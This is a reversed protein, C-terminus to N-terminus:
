ILSESYNLSKVKHRWLMVFGLKHQARTPKLNSPPQVGRGGVGFFFTFIVSIAIHSYVLKLMFFAEWTKCQIGNIKNTFNLITIMKVKFNRGIIYVPWLFKLGM